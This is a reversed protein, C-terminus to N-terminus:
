QSAESQIFTPRRYGPDDKPTVGICTVARGGLGDALSPERERQSAVVADAKRHTNAEGPASLSKVLLALEFIRPVRCIRCICGALERAKHVRGHSRRALTVTTRTRPQLQASQSTAFRRRPTHLHSKGHFPATGRKRVGLRGRGEDMGEKRLKPLDRRCLSRKHEM